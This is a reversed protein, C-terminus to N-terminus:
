IREKESFILIDDPTAALDLPVDFPGAPVRDTLQHSLAVGMTVGHRPNAALWRDYCGGGKGLRFGRRDVATLPVLMLDLDRAPVEPAAPDPAPIGYADPVLSALDTVRRFCLSLDSATVPLALVKGAALCATLLPRIDAEGPIPMYAAVAKARSWPDSALIRRCLRASEAQMIDPGPAAARIQRRLAAKASASVPRDM